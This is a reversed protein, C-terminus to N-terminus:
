KEEATVRLKGSELLALIRGTSANLKELEQIMRLRDEAPNIAAWAPQVPSLRGFISSAAIVVLAAAIIALLLRSHRDMRGAM